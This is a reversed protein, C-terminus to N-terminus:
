VAFRLGQLELGADSRRAPDAASRPAGGSERRGSLDYTLTVTGITDFGAQHLSHLADRDRVSPSITVRRLGRRRAEAMVRDLLAQGIGRRRWDPAVVVPDIEGDRGQTVLGIFGIATDRGGPGPRDDGSSAQPDPRGAGPKGTGPTPAGVATAGQREAVWMGSLDLRTLYEEFGAGDDDRQGQGYLLSQHRVLEAWLSRCAAHDSPRYGRITAGTPTRTPMMTGTM